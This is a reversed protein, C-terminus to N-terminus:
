KFARLLAAAAAATPIGCVQVIEDILRKSEKLINSQPLVDFSNTRMLKRSPPDDDAFLENEELEEDEEVDEEDLDEEDDDEIEEEEEGMSENEEESM